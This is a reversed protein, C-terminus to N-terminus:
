VHARGIQAKVIRQWREVRNYNDGTVYPFIALTLVDDVLAKNGEFVEELDRRLGTQKAVQELLWIDGYLRSMDEESSAPRGPGPHIMSEAKELNWGSPFVLRSRFAEDAYIYQHNPIFTGGEDVSGLRVSHYRRKGNESFGDFIQARAYRYGKDLHLTVNISGDTRVPRAM